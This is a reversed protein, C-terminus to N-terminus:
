INQQNLKFEKENREIKLMLETGVVCQLRPANTGCQQAM